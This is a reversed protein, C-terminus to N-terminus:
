GGGGGGGGGLAVDSTSDIAAPRKQWTKKREQVKAPSNERQSAGSSLHTPREEGGPSSGWAPNGQPDFVKMRLAKGEPARVSSESRRKIPNLRAGGAATQNASVGPGM